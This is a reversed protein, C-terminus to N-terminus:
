AVSSKKLLYTEAIVRDALIYRVLSANVVQHNSILHSYSLKLISANLVRMEGTRTVAKQADIVQLLDLRRFINTLLWFSTPVANTLIAFLIVLEARAVMDTSLSYKLNMAVRRIM